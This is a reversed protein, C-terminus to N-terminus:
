YFVNLFLLIQKDSWVPFWVRKGGCLTSNNAQTWMNLSIAESMSMYGYSPGNNQIKGM